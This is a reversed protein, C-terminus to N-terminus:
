QHNLEIKFVYAHDCPRKGPCKIALGSRNVEWDLDEDSGLMSISKIESPYIGVFDEDPFQQTTISKIAVEDGPWDLCIAYLHNGKVTFRIDEAKYRINSENGYTADFDLSTPGEAAVTWPRTGNSQPDM